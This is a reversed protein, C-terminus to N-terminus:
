PLNNVKQWLQAAGLNPFHAQEQLLGVATVVREKDGHHVTHLWTRVHMTGITQSLEYYM